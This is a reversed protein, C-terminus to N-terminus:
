AEVERARDVIQDALAYITHLDDSEQYHVNLVLMAKIAGYFSGTIRVVAGHRTDQIWFNEAKSLTVVFRQMESNRSRFEGVEGQVYTDYPAPLSAILGETTLDTNVASNTM